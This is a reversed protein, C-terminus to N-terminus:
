ATRLSSSPFFLYFILILLLSFYFYFLFAASLEVAGRGASQACLFLLFLNTQFFFNMRVLEDRSQMRLLDYAFM